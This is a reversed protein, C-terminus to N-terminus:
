KEFIDENRLVHSYLDIHDNGVTVNKFRKRDFSLALGDAAMFNVTSGAMNIDPIILTM